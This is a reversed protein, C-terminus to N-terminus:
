HEFLKLFENFLQSWKDKNQVTTTFLQIFGWWCVVFAAVHIIIFFCHKAIALTQTVFKYFNKISLIFCTPVLLTLFTCIVIDAHFPSIGGKGVILSHWTSYV